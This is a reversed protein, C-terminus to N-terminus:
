SASGAAARAWEPRVAAIMAAFADGMYRHGAASPHFGDAAYSPREAAYGHGAVNLCLAGHRDAAARIRENIAAFASSKKARSREHFALFRTLDPITATLLLVGPRAERAADLMTDLVEAYRDADVRPQALVDNAGCLVSMLDPETALAPALQTELVEGSLAGYVAFSALELGLEAAVLEPWPPGTGEIGGSWSDGIAAFRVPRATGAASDEGLGRGTETAEIV